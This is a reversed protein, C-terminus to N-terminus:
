KVYRESTPVSVVHCGLPSFHLGVLRMDLGEIWSRIKGRHNALHGEGWGKTGHFAGGTPANGRLPRKAFGDPSGVGVTLRQSGDALSSADRVHPYKLDHTLRLKGGYADASM